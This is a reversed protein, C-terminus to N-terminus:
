EAATETAAELVQAAVLTRAFWAGRGTLRAVSKRYGLENTVMLDDRVLDAVTVGCIRVTSGDAVWFGRLKRLGRGNHCELIAVRQARSLIVVPAPTEPTTSLM